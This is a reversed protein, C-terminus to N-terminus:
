DSIQAREGYMRDYYEQYDGSRINEWWTRNQRYWEITGELGEELPIRPQWGLETTLRNIDLAYRRDHGPRDAVFTILGPSAGLLEVLTKVLALNAVDNGTGVNYIQGVEGGTWVAWVAECHDIVHLWERTQLGDGYVPLPQGEVINTIMLPILKEPFQWPGYNNSARTILAPVGWTHVAANVLLDASAKSAAYPSSPNLHDTESFRIDAPASGYVEDTGIQLFRPIELERVLDLLVQVGTVNSHLFPTASELSRDVHSEAAFNIVGEAGDLIGRMAEADAIDAREFRVRDLVGELNALNGAYTLLDVVVLDHDPHEECLWHVFNSGIFGAGGTIVLHSM